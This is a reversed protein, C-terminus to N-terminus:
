SLEEKDIEHYCIYFGNDVGLVRKGRKKRSTNKPHHRLLAALLESFRFM